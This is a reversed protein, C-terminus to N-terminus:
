YLFDTDERKNRQNMFVNQQRSCLMCTDELSYLKDARNDEGLIVAKLNLICFTLIFLMIRMFNFLEEVRGDVCVLLLNHSLLYTILNILQILLTKM